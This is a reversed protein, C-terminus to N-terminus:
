FSISSDRSCNWTGQLHWYLPTACLVFGIFSFVTYIQNPYPMITRSRPTISLIPPFPPEISSLNYSARTYFLAQTFKSHVSHPAERVAWIEVFILRSKAKRLALFLQRGSISAVLTHDRTIGLLPLVLGRHTVSYAPLVLNIWNELLFPIGRQVFRGAGM